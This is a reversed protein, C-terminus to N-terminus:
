ELGLPGAVRIGSQRGDRILLAALLGCALYIAAHIDLLVILDVHGVLVGALLSGSARMVADLAGGLGVVRGLMGPPSFRQLATSEGIGVASGPIGTLGFVVVYIWVATSITPANWFAFAVISFGIYGAILLTIPGFRSAFRGIISAGVIAGVAMSGRIIGVEVGGGDLRDVVFVVFLVLFFGQAIQGLGSLFILWRLSRHGRVVEVGARVGTTVAEGTEEDVTIPRTNSRVFVMAIAVAIFTAGDIAVVAGIGGLGVAVGGLPSGILRALSASTSNAANAVTLQEPPVVRPLLAVSAPNNIQTLMAQAGVVLYAPWIRDGTVALLPLLTLSQAVNTVILTRRLDWRDVLSGGIPGLVLAAVLEVVFLIATASGSGSEVFVYVPLAVVLFWDGMDNIFGGGWVLRFDRTRWPSPAKVRPSHEDGAVQDTPQGTM